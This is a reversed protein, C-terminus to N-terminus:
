LQIPSTDKGQVGEARSLQGLCNNCSVYSYKVQNRINFCEAAPDDNYRRYCHVEEPGGWCTNTQRGTQTQLPVSASSKGFASLILAVVVLTLVFRLMKM